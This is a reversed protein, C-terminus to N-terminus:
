KKGFFENRQQNIMEEYKKIAVEKMEIEHQLNQIIDEKIKLTKIIKEEIEMIEKKHTNEIDEKQKDFIKQANQLKNNLLAIEADGKQLNSKLEIELEM